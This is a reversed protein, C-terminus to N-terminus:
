FSVLKSSEHCIFSSKVIDCYECPTDNIKMDAVKCGFSTQHSGSIICTRTMMVVGYANLSVHGATGSHNEKENEFMVM